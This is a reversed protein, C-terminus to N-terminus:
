RPRHRGLQYTGIAMLAAAVDDPTSGPPLLGRLMNMGGGVVAGPHTECLCHRQLCGGCDNCVATEVAAGHHPCTPVPCEEYRIGSM